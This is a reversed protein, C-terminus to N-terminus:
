NESDHDWYNWTCALRIKPASCPCSSSSYTFSMLTSSSRATSTSRPAWSTSGGELSWRLTTFWSSFHWCELSYNPYVICTLISLFICNVHVLWHHEILCKLAAREHKYCHVGHVYILWNFTIIYVYIYSIRFIVVLSWIPTIYYMDIINKNCCTLIEISKFISYHYCFKIVKNKGGFYLM